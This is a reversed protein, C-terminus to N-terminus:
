KQSTEQQLDKEIKDLEQTMNDKTIEKKAEAEYEAMTKLETQGPQPGSSRKKCGVVSIAIIAVIILVKLLM